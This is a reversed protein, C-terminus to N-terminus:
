VPYFPQGGPYMGSGPLRPAPSAGSQQHQNQYASLPYHGPGDAFGGPQSAASSPFLSPYGGGGGGGGAGLAGQSGGGYGGGGGYPGLGGYVGMGLSSGVPNSAGHLGSPHVSHGPIGGPNAHTGLGSLASAGLGHHGSLGVPNSVGLGANMYGGLQIGSAHSQPQHQHQHQNQSHNLSSIDSVDSAASAGLNGGGPKQKQGEVALKCFLQHGDIIKTPEELSRRTADVTKFIFLAFGRSRGSQKDFGLPGEEIEGYQSFLSLLRDAPMDIPVNGVYIKRASVDASPQPHQQSSGTSALQSVTMRGDIKKSPEKLANLAGDMHKFTVFGYGKSKGTNKDMIVVGEELEGFHSFLSKLSETTTDWGLGRVFLKRLAPDKDAIGRIAELVDLHKAGAEQVIEVLQERSFSEIMKGVDEAAVAVEVEGTGGNEEVKRKKADM